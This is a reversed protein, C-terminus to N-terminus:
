LHIPQACIHDRVVRQDVDVALQAAPLVGDTHQVHDAM